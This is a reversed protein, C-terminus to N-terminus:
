RIVGMKRLKAEAHAGYRTYLRRFEEPVTDWTAHPYANEAEFFARGLEVALASPRPRRPPAPPTITAKGKYDLATSDTM